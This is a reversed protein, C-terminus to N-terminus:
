NINFFWFGHTISVTVAVDDDVLILTSYVCALEAKKNMNTVQIFYISAPHFSLVTCTASIAKAWSFLVLVRCESSGALLFSFRTWLFDRSIKPVVKM